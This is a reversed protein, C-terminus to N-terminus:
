VMPTTATLRRHSGFHYAAVLIPTILWVAAGALPHHLHATTIALAAAILGAILHFLARYIFTGAEARAHLHVSRALCAANAAMAVHNILMIVSFVLM